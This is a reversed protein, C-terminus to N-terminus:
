FGIDLDAIDLATSEIREATERASDQYTSDSHFTSSSNTETVGSSDTNFQDSYQESLQASHICAPILEEEGSRGVTTPILSTPADDMITAPILDQWSPLDAAQQQEGRVQPRVAHEPKESPLIATSAEFQSGVTLPLFPNHTQHAALQQPRSPDLSGEVTLPVLPNKGGSDFQQQLEYPTPSHSEYQVLEEYVQRMKPRQKAKYQTCKM